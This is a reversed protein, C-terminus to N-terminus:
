FKHKFEVPLMGHELVPHPRSDVAVFCFSGGGASWNLASKWEKCWWNWSWLGRLLFEFVLCWCSGDHFGFRWLIAPKHMTPTTSSSLRPNQPQRGIEWSFDQISTETM